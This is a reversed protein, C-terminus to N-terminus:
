INEVKSEYLGSPKGAGGPGKKRWRLGGEGRGPRGGEKAWRELLFSVNARVVDSSLRRRIYSTVQAREKGEGPGGKRLGMSRLKSELMKDMVTKVGESAEGYAGFVLDLVPPFDGLQRTTPGNGDM